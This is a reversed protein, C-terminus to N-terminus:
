TEWAYNREMVVLAKVPLTGSNIPEIRSIRFGRKGEKNLRAQLQEEIGPDLAIQWVLYEYYGRRSRKRPLFLRKLVRGVAQIIRM